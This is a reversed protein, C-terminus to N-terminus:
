VMWRHRQRRREFGQARNQALREQDPLDLIGALVKAFVFIARGTVLRIGGAPQRACVDFLGTPSDIDPYGRILHSRFLQSLVGDQWGKLESERTVADTSDFFM